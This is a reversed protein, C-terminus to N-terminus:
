IGLTSIINDIYALKKCPKWKGEEGMRVMKYKSLYRMLEKHSHHKYLGLKSFQKKVRSAILATLFNILETAYVRYDNHVNECDRDIINKYFDFFVEIDWRQAYAKYIILPTTDTRSEFVILGFESKKANYKEVDFKDKKKAKAIYGVEQEMAMKPDRFSYLFKGNSMKVKKFLITGNEYGELPTDPEDMKYRKVLKSNTKLPAIYSLNKEKQMKDLFAKSPFGKDFVMIGNTIKYDDVFDDIATMDLMNGVYPKTAIPEMEEPDFAYLLSLDKSGKKAGKRSFESFISKSNYDKLMGDIVLKKGKASEIRNQMFKRILTYSKGISDMFKSVTLESLAVNKYLESAYSTQYQLELDRNKVEGYAARLLAITYLCTAEKPTWVKLLDDMLDKGLKDCLSVEGYDKIDVERKVPEKVREIYRGDRIEGIVGLEVPVNRGNIRKCTRKIVLYHNGSPKVRTNKPRPIALIDKPVSM